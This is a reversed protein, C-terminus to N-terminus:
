KYKGGLKVEYLWGGVLLCNSYNIVANELDESKFFVPLAKGIVDAMLITEEESLVPAEVNKIIHHVKKISFDKINYNLKKFVRGLNWMMKGFAILSAKILDGDTQKAMDIIEDREIELQTNFITISPHKNMM